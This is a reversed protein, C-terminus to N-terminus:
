WNKWSKEPKDRREWKSPPLTNSICKLNPLNTFKESIKQTTLGLIQNILIQTKEDNLIPDEMNKDMKGQVM